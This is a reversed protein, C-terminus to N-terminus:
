EGSATSAKPLSLLNAFLKYASAVGEPLQRFFGLGIYVWRGEGYKAEVLMGTKIGSNYEWPDESALLETYRPDGEPDLFYLGREQVWGGWDDETIANPTNFVPHDPVLIDIPAEEVTIRNRSVKKPYPGWQAANFEFKNYQVLLTGGDAVYDLLRQNYSRLDERALYARVGTMIVDYQSLDGEALDETQLFTLEAGLQRIATPIEDGVGDIYGVKVPAISLDLAQVTAEAPHYLYRTQIHDYAITQVGERFEEGNVRAVAKINYTGSAITAPPTVRFRTSIAENEREFPLEAASPEVSWGTPVEVSLTGEAAATGKYVANVSVPRTKDDAGSPFVVVGPAVTVSVLPLVSVVKQKESGVWPGEYRYQVPRALSFETTGSVFTIRASLAPASWPQGFDEPETLEFRDISLDSRGWYPRDYAADSGVTIEYSASVVENDTLSSPFSPSTDREDARDILAVTWGDPTEVDISQLGLPEPSRNTVRVEVNLKSGRTVEGRNSVPDLGVGHALALALEFDAVKPGLRHELEYRANESLDSVAIDARLKRVAELGRRLAPVTNWPENADFASRAADVDRQLANLGAVVFTGREGEAAVFAELRRLGTEVGDFLDAEADPIDIVNDELRWASQRSGPFARLQGMGQCRHNSRAQLGVQYYSRGLIPDYRGTDVSVIHLKEEEPARDPGDPDFGVRTRSYLKLPQWPKLGLAIQEPFRKPDAAARFAEATLIGSTQHHQGGGGGRPPLMVMVDPRVTRIIRVTDELIEEKGWKQLTEEVSFSYGFEYARSFYQEVGDYRHMAMLEETRLIGIAEFLEPGIENQGGDGRTLTLLATRLGRGRSLMMLLGNDEDDPHATTHLFTAGADLKRLQLALGSAGREEAIPELQAVAVAPALCCTLALLVFRKM